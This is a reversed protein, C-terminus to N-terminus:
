LIYLTKSYNERVSVMYKKEQRITQVDLSKFYIDAKAFDEQIQEKVKDKDEQVQNLYSKSYNM